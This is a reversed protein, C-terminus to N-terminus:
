NGEKQEDEIKIVIESVTADKPPFFVPNYVYVGAKVSSRFIAKKRFLIAIYAGIQTKSSFNFDDMLKEKSLRNIESDNYTYFKYLIDVEKPTLKEENSQRIVNVLNM